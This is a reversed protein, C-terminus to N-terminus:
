RRCCMLIGSCKMRDELVGERGEKKKKGEKRLLVRLSLRGSLSNHDFKTNEGCCGLDKRVSNDDM